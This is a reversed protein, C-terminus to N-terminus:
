SLDIAHAKLDALDLIDLAAADTATLAVRPAVGEALAEGWRAACLCWRDGAALGPFDFEPRPTSLDNGRGATYDLFERTMVACVVHRGADAPGTRCFGDRFFGTVPADCCGALPEGLVNRAPNETQTM